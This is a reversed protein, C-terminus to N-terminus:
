RGTPERAVNSIQRELQEVQGNYHAHIQQGDFNLGESSVYRISFGDTDYGIHVVINHGTRTNVAEILGRPGAAPNPSALVRTTWGLATAAREIEDARDGVLGPSGFAVRQPQRIPEERCAALGFGGLVAVVLPGSSRLLDRRQM